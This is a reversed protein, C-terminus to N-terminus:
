SRDGTPLQQGPNAVATCKHPFNPWKFDAYTVMLCALKVSNDNGSSNHASKVILSPHSLISTGSLWYVHVVAVPTKKSETFGVSEAM